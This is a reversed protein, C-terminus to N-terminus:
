ASPVAKEARLRYGQGRVQEIELGIRQELGLKKKLRTIHVYVTRIDEGADQRWITRYIDQPSIFEGRNEYLLKFILFERPSLLADQGRVYVRQAGSDIHFVEPYATEASSPSETRGSRRLLAEIRALFENFDYPKSLYDDGGSRLGIVIDEKEGLASLFLIPLNRDHRRLDRCFDLGSGDPLMIDLIVLHPKVEKLQQEAEKLDTAGHVTYGQMQLLKMNAELLRLNDEVLLISM